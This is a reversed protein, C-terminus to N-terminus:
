DLNPPHSLNLKETEVSWVTTSPVPALLGEVWPWIGVPAPGPALAPDPCIQPCSLRNQTIPPHDPPMRLVVIRIWTFFGPLMIRPMVHYLTQPVGASQQEERGAPM